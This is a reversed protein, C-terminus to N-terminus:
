IDLSNENLLNLKLKIENFDKISKKTEKLYGYLYIMEENKIIEEIYNIKLSVQNSFLNYQEFMEKKEEM